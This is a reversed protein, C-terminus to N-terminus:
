EEFYDQKEEHKRAWEEISCIVVAPNGSVIVNDPVKGRVVSGAGVIVNNGIETGPLLFSRAGIFCNEGVKVPRLFRAKKEIGITKLGKAISYDHTLFVTQMSITTNRGISILSYNNGDFYASPDIFGYGGRYYDEPINIGINRLYKPYLKKYLGANVLALKKLFYRELVQMIKKVRM